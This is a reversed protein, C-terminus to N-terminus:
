KSEYYKSVFHNLLRVGFGAAGKPCVNSGTRHWAMGAIDLHSWPTKDKIFRQLFAAAVSSSGLGKNNPSNLMDACDSKLAQDYDKHLPMRWLPENVEGAVDILKNALEDNNSFCGAYTRGLAISIAGTLTALDIILKPKFEEQTYHLADALVLRGEADTNIIEISQGSMSIVVDSPRQANGDPMNEVLGVVGVANVKANRLALAKIAGVVAASGAMDYKMDEMGASPKLSIGGTDFTVGKGVFAIPAEKPNDAGNYRMIVLKSEAASGQGVGLLANMGLNHMEREGLIEIEVGIPELAEAIKEAYAAPYLINAPESVLDRAFYVSLAVAKLPEFLKETKATNDTFVVVNKLSSQLKEKDKTFYKTFRYNALMAGSALLAATEDQSFNGLKHKTFIELKEYKLSAAISAAKGGLEEIQSRELKDSEGTGLLIISCLNEDKSASTIIYSEAFKGKFLKKNLLTKSIVGHHQQDVLMMESSVDCEKDVFFVICGSYDHHGASSHFKIETM